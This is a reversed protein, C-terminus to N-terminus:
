RSPVCRVGINLWNERSSTSPQGLNGAALCSVVQEIYEPAIEGVSRDLLYVSDLRGTSDVTAALALEPASESSAVSCRSIAPNAPIPLSASGPKPRRPGGVGSVLSFELRCGNSTGVASVPTPLATSTSAENKRGCALELVAVAFISCRAAATTV